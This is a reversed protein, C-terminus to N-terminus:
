ASSEGRASPSGREPMAEPKLAYPESDIHEIQEVYAINTGVVPDGIHVVDLIGHRIIEGSALKVNTEGDIKLKLEVNQCWFLAFFANKAQCTICIGFFDYNQMNYFM